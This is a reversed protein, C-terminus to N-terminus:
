GLTHFEGTQISGSVRQGVDIELVLSGELHLLPAAGTRPDLRDFHPLYGGHGRRAVSAEFGERRPLHAAGDRM